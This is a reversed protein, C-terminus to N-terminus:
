RQRSQGFQVSLSVLWGLTIRLRESTEEVLTMERIRRAVEDRKIEARARRAFGTRGEDAEENGADNCPSRTPGNGTTPHRARTRRKGDPSRCLPFTLIGLM